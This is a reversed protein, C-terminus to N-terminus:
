LYKRFKNESYKYKENIKINSIIYLIIGYIIYFFLFIRIKLM